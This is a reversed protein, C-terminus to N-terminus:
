FPNEHMPERRKVAPRPRLQVVLHDHPPLHPHLDVEDRGPVTEVRFAEIHFQQPQPHDDVRRVVPRSQLRAVRHHPEAVAFKQVGDRLDPFMRLAGDKHVAHCPEKVLLLFQHLFPQKGHEEVLVLLHPLLVHGEQLPQVRVRGDPEHRKLRVEVAVGEREDPPPLFLVEPAPPNGALVRVLEGPVRQLDIFVEDGRHGLATEEQPEVVPALLLDALGVVPDPRRPVLRFNGLLLKVLVALDHQLWRVRRLVPRAHAELRHGGAAHQNDIVPAPPPLHHFVAPGAPEAIM